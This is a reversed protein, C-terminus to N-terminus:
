LVVQNTSVLVLAKINDLTQVLTLNMVNGQYVHFGLITSSGASKHARYAHCSIPRVVQQLIGLEGHVAEVD